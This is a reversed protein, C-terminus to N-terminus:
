LVGPAISATVGYLNFALRGGTSSRVWLTDGAKLQIGANATDAFIQVPESAPAVVLDFVLANDQSVSGGAVVHHLRMSSAAPDVNAVFLRTVETDLTATFLLEDGGTLPRLSALRSGQAADSTM